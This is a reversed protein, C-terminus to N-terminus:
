LKIANDIQGYKDDAIEKAKESLDEHAQETDVVVLSEQFQPSLHILKGNKDIIFSGGDFINDDQAGVQNLYVVNANRKIAHHKM